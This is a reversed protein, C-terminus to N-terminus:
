SGCNIGFDEHLKLM